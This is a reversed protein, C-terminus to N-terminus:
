AYIVSFDDINAIRFKRSVKLLRLCDNALAKEIQRVTGKLLFFCIKQLYFLLTMLLM